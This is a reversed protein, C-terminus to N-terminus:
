DEFLSVQDQQAPAQAASQRAAKKKRARKRRRAPPPREAPPPPPAGTISDLTCLFTLLDTRLVRYNHVARDSGGIVPLSGNAARRQLTRLSVIGETYRAVDRLYFSASAPIRADWFAKVEEARSV